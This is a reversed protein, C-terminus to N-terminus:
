RKVAFSENSTMSTRNRTELWYKATLDLDLAGLVANSSSLSMRWGSMFKGAFSPTSSSLKITKLLNDFTSTTLFPNFSSPNEKSPVVRLALNTRYNKWASLSTRVDASVAKQSPHGFSM